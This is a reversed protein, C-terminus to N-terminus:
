KLDNQTWGMYGRTRKRGGKLEGERESRKVSKEEVNKFSINYDKRKTKRNKSASLQNPIFYYTIKIFEKQRDKINFLNYFDIQYLVQRVVQLGLYRSSKKKM